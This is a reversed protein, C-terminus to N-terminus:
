RIIDQIFKLFRKESWPKVSHRFAEAANSSQRIMERGVRVFAQYTKQDKKADIFLQQFYHIKDLNVLPKGKTIPYGVYAKITKKGDIAALTTRRMGDFLKLKHEKRDYFIFVPHHDREPRPVLNPMYKKFFEPHRHYYDAFRYFNRGCRMILRDVTLPNFGTMTLDSINRIELTWHYSPNTLLRYVSKIRWGEAIASVLLWYNHEGDRKRLGYISNRLQRRFTKDRVNWFIKLFEHYLYQDAIVQVPVNKRLIKLPSSFHINM